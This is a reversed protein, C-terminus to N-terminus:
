RDYVVIIESACDRADYESVVNGWSYSYPPRGLEQQLWRDHMAKRDREHALTREKSDDSPIRMTLFIRDISEGKFLVTGVIGVEPEIHYHRWDENVLQERATKGIASGLFRARDSHRRIEGSTFSITGDFVGIKM